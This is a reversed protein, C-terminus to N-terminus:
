TETGAPLEAGKNTKVPLCAMQFITIVIPFDSADFVNAFFFLFAAFDPVILTSLCLLKPSYCKSFLFCANIKKNENQFYIKQPSLASFLCFCYIRWCNDSLILLCIALIGLFERSRKKFNQITEHAQREEPSKLRSATKLINKVLITGKEWWKKKRYCILLVESQSLFIDSVNTKTPVAEQQSIM